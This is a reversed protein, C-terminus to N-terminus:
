IASNGGRPLCVPKEAPLRGLLVDDVSVISEAIAYAALQAANTLELKACLSARHKEVTKTSRRLDAAIRHNRWGIAVRRLVAMEQVTLMSSPVRAARQRIHSQV